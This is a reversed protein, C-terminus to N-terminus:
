SIVGIIKASYGMDQRLVKVLIKDENTFGDKNKVDDFVYPRFM